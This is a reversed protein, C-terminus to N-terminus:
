PSDPPGLMDNWTQEWRDRVGPAPRFAVVAALPLYVAAIQAPALDTGSVSEMVLIGAGFRRLSGAQIWLVRGVGVALSQDRFRSSLSGVTRTLSHVDGHSWGARRSWDHHSPSPFPHGAGSRCRGTCGSVGSRRRGACAPGRRCRVTDTPLAGLGRKIRPNPTRDGPPGGRRVQPNATRPGRNEPGPPGAPFPIPLATCIKTWGSGASQSEPRQGAAITVSPRGSVPAGRMVRTVPGDSRRGRACSPGRHGEWPGSRRVVLGTAAM